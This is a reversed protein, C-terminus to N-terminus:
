SEEHTLTARAVSVGLEILLHHIGVETTVVPLVIDRTRGNLLIM